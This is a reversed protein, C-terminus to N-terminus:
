VLCTFLYITETTEVTCNQNQAIFSLMPNFMKLNPKSKIGPKYTIVNSADGKQKNM